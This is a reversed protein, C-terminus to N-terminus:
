NKYTACMKDQKFAIWTSEIKKIVAVNDICKDLFEDLKWRRQQPNNNNWCPPM